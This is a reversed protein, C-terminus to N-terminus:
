TIPYKIKSLADTEINKTSTKYSRLQLMCAVAIRLSSNSVVHSEITWVIPPRVERILNVDRKLLSVLNILNFHNHCIKGIGM